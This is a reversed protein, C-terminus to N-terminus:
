PEAGYMLPAVRSHIQLALEQWLRLEFVEDRSVGHNTDSSQCEFPFPLSSHKGFRIPTLDFYM